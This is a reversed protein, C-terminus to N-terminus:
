GRAAILLSAVHCGAGALVFLHWIAHFYPVKKIAYFVVGLTYALGGAALLAFAAAPLDARVEGLVPVISWGMALYVLAGAAKFRDIRRSSLVIGAGAIAWELCLLVWGKSGGLVDISYATYTGAILVYISAHDLVRLARKVRPDTSAHYVTSSSFLMTLSLGFVLYPWVARGGRLAAGVLLPLVVLSAVAGLGHSLANAAEEGPSQRRRALPAASLTDPMGLYVASVRPLQTRPCPFHRAVYLGLALM